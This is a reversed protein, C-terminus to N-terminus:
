LAFAVHLKIEWEMQAIVGQNTIMVLIDKRVRIPVIYMKM